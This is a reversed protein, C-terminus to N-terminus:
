RKNLGAKLKSNQCYVRQENIGNEYIIQWGDINVKFRYFLDQCNEPLSVKLHNCIEKLLTHSNFKNTNQNGKKPEYLLYNDKESIEFETIYQYHIDPPSDAKVTLLKIILVIMFSTEKFM